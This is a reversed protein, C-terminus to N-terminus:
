GNPKLPTMFFESDSETSGIGNTVAVKYTYMADDKLGTLEVSFQVEQLSPERESVLHDSQMLSGDDASYQVQFSEPSCSFASMTWQIITSEHTLNIAILNIPQSPVQIAVLSSLTQDYYVIMHLAIVNLEEMTVWQDWDLTILSGGM